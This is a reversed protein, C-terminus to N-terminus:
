EYLEYLDEEESHEHSGIVILYILPQPPLLVFRSCLVHPLVVVPHM